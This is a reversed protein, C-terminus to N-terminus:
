LKVGVEVAWASYLDSLWTRWAEVTPYERHPVVVASVPGAVFPVADAGRRLRLLRHAEARAERVAEVDARPPGQRRAARAAQRDTM